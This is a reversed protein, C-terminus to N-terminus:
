GNKAWYVRSVDALSDDSQGIDARMTTIKHDTLSSPVALGSRAAWYAHESAGYVAKRLDSVTAPGTVASEKRLWQIELDRNTLGAYTAPDPIESPGVPAISLSQVMYFDANTDIVAQDLAAQNPVIAAWTPKGYSKLANWMTSGASYLGGLVDWSGQQIALNATDAGWYNITKYGRAHAATTLVTNTTENDFKILIKSPGGHADCIDLMANVRALTAFGYKPDVLAIGLGADVTAILADALLALPQPSPGSINQYTSSISAWTMTLPDLTTTATNLVLPDLYQFGSLFPQLDSSFAVSMEFASFGVASAQQLTDICSQTYGTPARHIATAGKTSLFEEVSTFPPVPAPPDALSRLVVGTASGAATTASSWTLSKSPVSAASIPESGAWLVTRTVTTLTDSAVLGIATGPTAVPASANPSLVEAGWGYILLGPADEALSFSNLLVVPIGSANWGTSNGLIPDSLDVNAIRFMIGDLRSDAVTKTFTYSAPESTIDTVPHLLLSLVRGTADNPVFPYGYRTFGTCTFDSPSTSGNTRLLVALMEGNATGVPRVIVLDNSSANEFSTTPIGVVAADPM